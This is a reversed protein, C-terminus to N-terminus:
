QSVYSQGFKGVGSAFLSNKRMTYEQRMQQLTVLWLHIPKNRPERNQEMSVYAQKQALVM